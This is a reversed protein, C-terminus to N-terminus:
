KCDCGYLGLKAPDNNWYDLVDKLAEGDLENGNIQIVWKKQGDSAYKYWQQAEQKVTRVTWGDYQGDMTIEADVCGDDQYDDERGQFNLITAMLHKAM